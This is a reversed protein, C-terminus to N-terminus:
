ETFYPDVRSTIDTAGTEFYAAEDVAAVQAQETAASSVLETTSHSCACGSGKFQERAATSSGPCSKGVLMPTIMPGAYYASQEPFMAVAGMAAVLVIVPVYFMVRVISTRSSAKVEQHILPENM